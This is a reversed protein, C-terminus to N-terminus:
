CQNIGVQRNKSFSPWIRFFTVHIDKTKCHQSTSNKIHMLSWWETFFETIIADNQQAPQARSPRDPLLTARHLCIFPKSYQWYSQTSVLYPLVHFALLSDRPHTNYNHNYYSSQGCHASCCKPSQLKDLIQDPLSYVLNNGYDLRSIVLSHVLFETAHQALAWFMNELVAQIAFM